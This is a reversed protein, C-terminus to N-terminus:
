IGLVCELGFKYALIYPTSAGSLPAYDVQPFMDYIRHRVFVELDANDIFEASGKSYNNQCCGLIPIIVYCYNSKKCIDGRLEQLNLHALWSTHILSHLINHGHLPCILLWIYERFLFFTAKKLPYESLNSCPKLFIHLILIVLLKKVQVRAMHVWFSWTLSSTIPLAHLVFSFLFAYLINTLFDSHFLGSPHGLRLHTSLILLHTSLISILRLSM